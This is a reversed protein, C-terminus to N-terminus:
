TNSGFIGLFSMGWQAPLSLAKWTTEAVSFLFQAWTTEVVSYLLQIYVSTHTLPACTTVAIHSEDETPDLLTKELGTEHYVTFQTSLRQYSGNLTKEDQCHSQM